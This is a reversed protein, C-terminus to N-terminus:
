PPSVCITFRKDNVGLDESGDLYAGAENRKDWRVDIVRVEDGLDGAGAGPPLGSDAAGAEHHVAGAGQDQAGLGGHSKRSDESKRKDVVRLNPLKVADGCELPVLSWVITEEAGPILASTRGKRIGSAVFNLGEPQSAPLAPLAQGTNPGPAVAVSPGSPELELSVSPFATRSPHLNRLTLTM